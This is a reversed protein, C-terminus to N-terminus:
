QPKCARFIFRSTCFFYRGAESLLSLEETWAALEDPPMGARKSIFDSILYSLGKSYTDDGWDLNLIPFVSM